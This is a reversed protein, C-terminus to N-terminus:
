REENSHAGQSSEATDAAGSVTEQSSAAADQSASDLGGRMERRLCLVAVLDEDTLQRAREKLRRRKREENRLEKAVRQRTAKQEQQLRKLEAIRENISSGRSRPQAEAPVAPPGSTAPASAAAPSSAPPQEGNASGSAGASAEASAAAPEASVMGPTPSASPLAHRGPPLSEERPKLQATAWVM